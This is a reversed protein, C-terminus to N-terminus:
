GIPSLRNLSEIYVERSEFPTGKMEKRDLNRYTRKRLKGRSRDVADVGSQRVVSPDILCCLRSKLTPLAYQLFQLFMKPCLPNRLQIPLSNFPLMKLIVALSLHYLKPQFCEWYDEKIPVRKENMIISIVGYHDDNAQLNIAALLFRLLMALLFIPVILSKEHDSSTLNM